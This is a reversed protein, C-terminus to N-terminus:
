NLIKYTAYGLLIIVIVLVVIVFVQSAAGKNDLKKNNELKRVRTYGKEQNYGKEEKLAETEEPTLPISITKDNEDNPKAENPKAITKTVKEDIERAYGISLGNCKIYANNKNYLDYNAYLGSINTVEHKITEDNTATEIIMPELLNERFSDTIYFSSEKIIKTENKNENPLYTNEIIKIKAIDNSIDIITLFTENKDRKKALHEKFLDHFEQINQETKPKLINEIEDNLEKIVDEQVKSPINKDNLYKRLDDLNKITGNEILNRIYNAISEISLSATNKIEYNAFMNRIQGSIIDLEDKTVYEKQGNINKYVGSLQNNNTVIIYEINNINLKFEM